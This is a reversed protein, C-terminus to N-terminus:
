QECITKLKNLGKEFDKGIMDDMSMFLGFINFPFAMAGNMGWTVKNTNGNPEITMYSKDNAEFPESFNLDYEIRKNSEAVTKIMEGKGVESNGAWIYKSGVTGDVGTIAIKMNLDKEAWPSWDDFKSFLNINEYIEENSANIEISRSVAYKKPAIAGAITVFTVIVVAVIAIVKLFKM